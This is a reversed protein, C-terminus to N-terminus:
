MHCINKEKRRRGKQWKHYAVYVSVHYAHVGLHKLLRSGLVKGKRRAVRCDRCNCYMVRIELITNHAPSSGANGPM